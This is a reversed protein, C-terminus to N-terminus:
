TSGSPHGYAPRPLRSLKGSMLLFNKRRENRVIGHGQLPGPFGEPPVPAGKKVQLSTNCYSCPSGPEEPIQDLFRGRQAPYCRNKSSPVRESARFRASSCALRNFMATLVPTISHSRFFPTSGSVGGSRHGSHHDRELRGLHPATPRYLGSLCFFTRPTVLVGSSIPPVPKSQRQEAELIDFVHLFYM